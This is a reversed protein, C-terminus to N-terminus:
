ALTANCGPSGQWAPTAKIPAIRFQYGRKVLLAIENLIALAAANKEAEKKCRRKIATYRREL